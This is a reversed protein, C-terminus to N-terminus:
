RRLPAESGAVERPPPAPEQQPLRAYSQAAAQRVERRSDQLAARELAGVARGDGMAGLAHAAAVRVESDRDSELLDILAPVARPDGLRGLTLAGDRRSPAHRSTLRGLADLYPDFAPAPPGPVPSVVETTRIEHIVVPPAVVPPAVMVVPPPPPPAANVFLSFFPTLGWNPGTREIFTNRQIVLPRQPGPAAWRPAPSIMGGAPIPGSRGRQLEIERHVTGGPRHITLERSRQGPGREVRAKREVTRGGPGTVSAAREVVQGAVPPASVLLMLWVLGRGAVQTM